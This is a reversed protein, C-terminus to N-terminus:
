YNKIEVGGFVCTGKLIITKTTDLVTTQLPRKDEVAGFVATVENQIVWHTPVVLKTGGFVNTVDLVIKGQIDAQTLNVEAGGMFCTLEGGKFNKSIIQKKLGSFVVVSDIYEINESTGYNNTLPDINQKDTFSNEPSGTFSTNTWKDGKYFNKNIAPHKPRFIFYIGIGILAIPGAFKEIRMEPLFEDALFIGGIAFLIFAAINKFNSKLGVIVGIGILLMGVSFFWTPFPVGLKNILVLVGAVLLFVGTYVRNSQQPQVQM